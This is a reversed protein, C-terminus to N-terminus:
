ESLEDAGNGAGDGGALGQGRIGGAVGVRGDGDGASARQLRWAGRTLALSGDAEVAAAPQPMAVPGGRGYVELESLIYRGGPEAPRTMLVRVWRGHAPSALRMDDTGSLAQITQWNQNDDSVQISGEAARKVWSLAVRDFSCVAGLDVAVWEEGSGASMWASSFVQPGAVYVPQGKDSLDVDAM